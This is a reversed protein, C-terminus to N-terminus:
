RTPTTASAASLVVLPPEEPHTLRYELHSLLRSDGPQLRSSLIYDPIINSCQPTMYFYYLCLKEQVDIPFLHLDYVALQSNPDTGARVVKVEGISEDPELYIVAPNVHLELRDASMCEAWVYLEQGSQGLIDWECIADKSREPNYREPHELDFSYLVKALDTQYEQWREAQIADPTFIPLPQPTPLQTPIDTVYMVEATSTPTVTPSVATFTPANTATANRGQEPIIPGCAVALFAILIISSIIALQKSLNMKSLM